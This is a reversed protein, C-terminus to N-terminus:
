AHDQAEDERDRAAAEALRILDRENWRLKDAIHLFVARRGENFATMQPDGREVSIELANCFRALDRLVAVGQDTTFVRQYARPMKGFRDALKTVFPSLPM